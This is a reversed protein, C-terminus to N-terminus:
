PQNRRPDVRGGVRDVGRERREAQVVALLDHQERERQGRRELFHRRRRDHLRRKLKNQLEAGLRLVSAV